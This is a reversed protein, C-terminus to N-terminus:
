HKATQSSALPQRNTTLVVPFRRNSRRRRALKLKLRSISEAFRVDHQALEFKYPVQHQFRKIAIEKRLGIVSDYPGDDRRSTLRGKQFSLADATPIHTHTGVLASIRGEALHWALWKKRMAGRCAYRDSDSQDRQSRARGGLRCSQISRRDAAHVNERCTSSM